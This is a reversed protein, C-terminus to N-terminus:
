SRRVSSTGLPTSISPNSATMASLTMGSRMTTGAAAADFGYRMTTCVRSHLDPNHANSRFTLRLLCVLLWMLELDLLSSHVNLFLEHCFELSYAIEGGAEFVVRMRGGLEDDPNGPRGLIDDRIVAIHIRV